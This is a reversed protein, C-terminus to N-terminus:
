PLFVEVFMGSKLAEDEVKAKLMFFLNEREDKTSINKPTFEATSAIFFVKGKFTRTEGDTHMHVEDGITILSLMSQPVYFKVYKQDRISLRIIAQNKAVVDGVQVSIKDVRGAESSLVVTEDLEIKALAKNAKAENVGALSQEIDEQRFGKTYLELKQESQEKLARAQLFLTKSEDYEKPTTALAKFLKEQRIFNSHANELAANKVDREAKLMAIDEKQYGNSMKQFYHQAQELKAQAQELRLEQENKEFLVLPENKEVSDGENKLIKEVRGGVKSGLYSQSVEIQGSFLVQSSTNFLTFGSFFFIFFFALTQKM